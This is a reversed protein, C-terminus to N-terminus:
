SESHMQRDEACGTKRYLAQDVWRKADLLEAFQNQSKVKTWRGASETMEEVLMGNCQRRTISCVQEVKDNTEKQYNEMKNLTDEIWESEGHLTCWLWQKNTIMNDWQLKHDTIDEM